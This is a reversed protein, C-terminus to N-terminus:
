ALIFDEMEKRYIDDANAYRFEGGRNSDKVWILKGTKKDYGSTGYEDNDIDHKDFMDLRQKAAREYATLEYDSNEVEPLKDLGSDVGM